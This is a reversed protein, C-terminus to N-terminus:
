RRTLRRATERDASALDARGALDWYLARNAYWRPERPACQISETYDELADKLDGLYQRAQARCNLVYSRDFPDLDESSLVVDAGRIAEAFIGRDADTHGLYILNQLILCAGDAKQPALTAGIKADDIAWEAQQRRAEPALSAWHNGLYGTFARSRQLYAKAYRPAIRIAESCRIGATKHDDLAMLRGAERVLRVANILEERRPDVVPVSPVLVDWRPAEKAILHDLKHYQLLEWLADIRVSMGSESTGKVLQLKLINHIGIVRGDDLFVPSGSSGEPTAASHEILQLSMPHIGDDVSFADEHAIVGPHLTAVPAYGQAPWESQGPYGLLAISRHTLEGAVDPGALKWETPLEPGGDLQMVAVDPGPVDVGGDRVDPSRVSLGEDIKRKLSPHYWIRSVRYAAGTGNVMAIMTGPGRYLDAVHAATAVLRYKKSIVFATGTGRSPHGVLLVGTSSIKSAAVLKKAEEASIKPKLDEGAFSSGRAMVIALFILSTAVRSRRM